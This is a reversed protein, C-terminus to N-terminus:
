LALEVFPQSLANGSGDDLRILDVLVITDTGSGYPGQQDGSISYGGNGTPRTSFRTQGALSSAELKDGICGAVREIPAETTQDLDAVGGRLSNPTACAGLLLTAVLASMSFKM